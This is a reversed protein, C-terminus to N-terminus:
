DLPPATSQRQILEVPLIEIAGDRQKVPHEMADVLRQAAAGGLAQRPQRITTLAPIFCRAIDIDDFGVVSVRGPVDIGNRHLESILGIATEDNACILATPRHTLALWSRAARIGSDLSFDGDFVWQSSLELKHVQLTKATGSRRAISLVNDPPGDIYGIDSHGLAVLHDVALKAGQANDVRVSPHTDADQWECAFVLPRLRGLPGSAPAEIPLTGDLCIIGDARSHHLYDFLHEPRLSPQQTDVMVVSLQNQALIQEIGALIQSFFPNGLNPVLVVVAGTRQSRLNRAALNVRYGTQEAAALVAKRTTEAVTEPKSLTRSVTATSVGAIRAVDKIKPPSVPAM